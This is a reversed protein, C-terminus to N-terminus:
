GADGPAQMAAPEVRTASRRDGPGGAGASGAPTLASRALKGCRTLFPGLDTRDLIADCHVGLYPALQAGPGLRERFLFRLGYGLDRVLDTWYVGERFPAARPLEDYVLHRYQLLPFNIGCRVALLGSLNHRGNVDLITYRGTRPDRKFECCAFGELALARLMARGPELIGEVHESRVVRPSGFRPPAKRLQRATFEVLPRGGWFYANYNVVETDPGPVIEQVLVELGADRAQELGDVLERLTHAVVMKRRFRDFFLHSQSPKLLLPFGLHAAFAKAEEVSRPVLTVPAPVGADDAAEYTRRKEIFARVVEWPPAAVACHRALLERSRSLAVVAEDSAPVLLAAGLREVAGLIAEVFAREQQHPPPVSFAEVVHRSVHAFDGPHYGAVSVPVGAEGLARVVGLAM